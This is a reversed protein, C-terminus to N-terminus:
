LYLRISSLVDDVAALSGAEAWLEHWESEDANVGSLAARARTRVQDDAPVTGSRILEEVEAPGDVPMGNSSAVLAAAAVARSGDDVQLYGDSLTLATQVRQPADRQGWGLWSASFTQLTTTTSHGVAGLVWLRM